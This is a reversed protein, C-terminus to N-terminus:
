PLRLLVPLWGGAQLAEILEFVPVALLFPLAERVTRALAPLSVDLREASRWRSPGAPALRPVARRYDDFAPGFVAALLREENGIVRDFVAYVAAAALLVAVISGSQAAVGAAGLLSFFYLPNRSLSYPGQTVLETGKRGGLYLSCWARGLIAAFILVVGAQELGAHVLSADSWTSHVFLAAALAAGGLRWFLRRRRSQVGALRRWAAGVADDDARGHRPPIFGALIPAASLPRDNSLRDSSVM